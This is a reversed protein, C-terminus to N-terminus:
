EAAVGRAARLARADPYKAQLRDLLARAREPDAKHRRYIEALRVAALIEREPPTGADALRHELDAIEDDLTILQGGFLANAVFRALPAVVREYIASGGNWLGWLALVLAVLKLELDGTALLEIVLALAALTLGGGVIRRFVTLPSPPDYIM